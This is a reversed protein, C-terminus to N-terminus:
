RRPMMPFLAQLLALLGVGLAVAHARSFHPLPGFLATTVIAACALFLLLAGLRWLLLDSRRRAALLVEYEAIAEDIIEPDLGDVTLSRRVHQIALRMKALAQCRRRAFFAQEKLNM